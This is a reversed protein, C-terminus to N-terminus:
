KFNKLYSSISFRVISVIIDKDLNISHSILKSVAFNIKKIFM